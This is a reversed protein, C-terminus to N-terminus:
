ACRALLAQFAPWGVTGDTNIALENNIRHGSSEDSRCRATGDPLQAGALRRHRWAVASRASHWKSPAVLGNARQDGRKPLFLLSHHRSRPSDRAAAANAGGHDHSPRRPDALLSGFTAATLAVFWNVKGDAALAGAALLWPAAPLPLGLQEVFVAAFLVAAGHRVLFELTENM